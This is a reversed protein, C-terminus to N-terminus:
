GSAQSLQLLAIESNVGFEEFGQRLPQAERRNWLIPRFQHRRRVLLGAVFTREPLKKFYGQPRPVHPKRGKAQPDGHAGGSKLSENAPRRVQRRLAEFEYKFRQFDWGAYFRFEAVDDIDPSLKDIGLGFDQQRIGFDFQQQLTPVCGDPGCGLKFRARPQYVRLFIHNGWSIQAVIGIKEPM